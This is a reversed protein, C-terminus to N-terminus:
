IKFSCFSLRKWFKNKQVENKNTLVTGLSRHVNQFVRICNIVHVHIIRTFPQVIDLSVYYAFLIIRPSDKNTKLNMINSTTDSVKMNMAFNM